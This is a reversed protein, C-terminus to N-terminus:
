LNGTLIREKLVHDKEVIRGAQHPRLRALEARLRLVDQLEPTMPKGSPTTTQAAMHRDLLERGWSVMELGYLAFAKPATNAGNRLRVWRQQWLALRLQFPSLISNAVLIEGLPRRAAKQVSLAVGLQHPKIRHTSVLIDGLRYSRKNTNM